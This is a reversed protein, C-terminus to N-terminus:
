SNNMTFIRFSGQSYAKGHSINTAFVSAGAGVHFDHDRVFWPLVFDSLKLLLDWM